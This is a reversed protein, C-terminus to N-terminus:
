RDSRVTCSRTPWFRSTRISSPVAVTRGVGFSFPVTRNLASGPAVIAKPAHADRLRASMRYYRSSLADWFPNAGQHFGPFGEGEATGAITSAAIVPRGTRHPLGDPTFEPRVEARGLDLYTMRADVGDGVSDGDSLLKAAAEFQRLGIVRANEM